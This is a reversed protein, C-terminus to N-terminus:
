EMETEKGRVTQIYDHHEQFYEQIVDSGQNFGKLFKGHLTVYLGSGKKGSPWM